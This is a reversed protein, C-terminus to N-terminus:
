ECTWRHGWEEKGYLKGCEILKYAEADTYGRKMVREKTKICSCESPPIFSNVAAIILLLPAASTVIIRTIKTFVSNKWMIILGMPLFLVLSVITRFKISGVENKLMFYIGVPMFLMMWVIVGGITHNFPKKKIVRYYKEDKDAM